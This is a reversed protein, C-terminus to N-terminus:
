VLAKVLVLTGDEERDRAVYGRKLWFRLAASDEPGVRVRCRSAKLRKGVFKELLSAGETGFGRGRLEKGLVIGIEMEDWRGPEAGIEATGLLAGSVSQLSFVLHLKGHLCPASALRWANRWEPKLKVRCPEMPRTTWM